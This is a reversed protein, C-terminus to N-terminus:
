AIRKYCFYQNAMETQVHGYITKNLLDFVCLCVCFYVLVFLLLYISISYLCVVGGGYKVVEETWVEELVRKVVVVVVVERM